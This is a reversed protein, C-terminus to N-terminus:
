HVLHAVHDLAERLTHFTNGWDAGGKPNAKGTETVRYETTPLGPNGWVSLNYKGIPHYYRVMQGNFPGFPWEFWVWKTALMPLATDSVTVLLGEM